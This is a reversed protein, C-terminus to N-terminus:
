DDVFQGELIVVVDVPMDPQQEESNVKRKRSSAPPPQPAAAQTASARAVHLAAEEATAFCGLFEQKGGRSVEARYPNSKYTSKFYVGKFGTSSDSRLLTLGEAEAQRVSAEATMPPPAAAAAAVAAQAKPSRTYSLAAEEPTAHNGLYVQKGGRRVQAKYPKNPCTSDFSVGNYGTSGSESRLLTLGEAEAQQLAEEATLPPPEPPAAAAAQGERSRAISLAAEEATLFTGLTVERGDRKVRAQYPSPRNSKFVVGQFGTSSSDSRLLKLGEAEAQRLAAEATMPPPAAAAARGEPSRAYSLAAEEPTAFRGLQVVMGGGRTVEARYRGSHLTVGKYGTSSIESKLLTLGEAEAQRLAAEATMPPPAPPAAAAARAEPTRAYCLAAEEATSFFGLNVSKGGRSAMVQYPKLRGDEFNRFYVGKYGTSSSDSRLLSLGEAEAQQLAEEATMPPPAAAEAAVAAQAEPTRAYCLAAEEVTAFSGLTLQQGGRRVQAKFPNLRGSSFCVNMFGTSSSQSRLLTLGEAEAQRLAAEAMMPLPVPPAAGAAVAAQAEPTRAYCLAAEEVTAFNGLFLQQGGRRVQAKYPKTRSRNACVNM